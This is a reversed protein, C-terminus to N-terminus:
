RKAEPESTETEETEPVKPLSTRWGHPFSFPIEPCSISRQRFESKSRRKTIPSGNLSRSTQKDEESLKRLHVSFAHLSDKFLNSPSTKRVPRPSKIIDKQEAKNLHFLKNKLKVVSGELRRRENERNPKLADKELDHLFSEVDASLTCKIDNNTM